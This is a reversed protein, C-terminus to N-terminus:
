VFRLGGGRAPPATRASPEIAARIAPDHWGAQACNAYTDFGLEMFDDIGFTQKWEDISYGFGVMRRMNLGMAKLLQATFGLDRLSKASLGLQSIDDICPRCEMMRAANMGLKSLQESTLARLHTGRFGASLMTPWRFGFEILADAGHTRHLVQWKMGSAVMMEPSVLTDRLQALTLKKWANRARLAAIASTHEPSLSQSANHHATNYMTSVLPDDGYDM